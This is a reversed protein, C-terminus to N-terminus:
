DQSDDQREKGYKENRHFEDESGMTFAIWLTSVWMLILCVVVLNFLGQDNITIM